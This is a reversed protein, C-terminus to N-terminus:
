SNSSSDINFRQVRYNGNDVVYLNGQRDFTLGIPYCLQNAEIGKGNGGVVISGQRAGQLWRMIRHNSSDAIYITGLQDVTMGKPSSLQTLSNGSSNGGAVVIGERAGKMWKMVRHNNEDSVYVSQDEDVFVYSRGSLQDLRVGEGNGGAVIIGSTEGLKLRRVEHKNYDGVYLYRDNDMALGWCGVNQIITEGFTSKRRPWRVVRRNGFDCIILCDSERDVIVDTPGNLQDTSNGLGNGGAVVEGSTSNCKWEMIRYNSYDTVYVTQDDDVCLGWPNSLQNLGNGRDYGGAVTIGNQAWRASVGIKLENLSASKCSTVDISIRTILPTADQRLNINSPKTLEEKLQTLDDNWRQLDTEFFDNEERSQRLQDTLQNLRSEIQRISENIHTLVVQRAEEAKQRIKNISDREWTDIQQILPHKQPKDTQDTLTQRFLDRNLEVEDFQKSLEQKHDGLHNFCFEQSCGGCRFTAKEKGCTICITRGSAQSM